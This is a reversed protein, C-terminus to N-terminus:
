KHLFVALMLTIWNIFIISVVWRFNTHIETRVQSLGNDVKDGLSTMRGELSGMRTDLSGMRKDIQEYAGQLHAIRIELADAAM